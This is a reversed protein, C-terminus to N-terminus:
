QLYELKHNEIYHKRRENYRAGILNLEHWAKPRDHELSYSRIDSLIFKYGGHMDLRDMVSYGDMGYGLEDLREDYGGVDYFAQKPIAALNLEIYHFPCEQNENTPDIRPDTWTVDKWDDLKYKNGVASVISHPNATYFDWFRRLTNPKAYTYDQWSIILDGKACAIARNMERNLTWVCGPEGGLPSVIIHEFKMDQESLAKHVLAMGEPRTTASIVSIQTGYM